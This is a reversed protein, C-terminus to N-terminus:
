QLRARPIRYPLETARDRLVLLKGDPVVASISDDRYNRNCGDQGTAFLAARAVTGAPTVRWVESTGGCCAYQGFIEGDDARVPSNLSGDLTALVELTMTSPALRLVKSGAVITFRGDDGLFWDGGADGAHAVRQSASSAAQRCFLQTVPGTGDEGCLTGDNTRGRLVPVAVGDTMPAVASFTGAADLTHLRWGEALHVELALGGGGLAIPDRYARVGGDTAVAGAARFVKAEAGLLAVGLAAGTGDDVNLSWLGAGRKDARQSAIGAEVFKVPLAHERLFRGGVGYLGFKTVFGGESLPAAPSWPDAPKGESALAGARVTGHGGFPGSVVLQSGCSTSDDLDRVLLACHSHPDLYPGFVPHTSGDARDHRWEGEPHGDESASWCVEVDDYTSFARWTQEVPLPEWPGIAVGRATWLSLRQLASASPDILEGTLVYVDGRDPGRPALWVAFLHGWLARDVRGVKRREFHATKRDVVRLLDVEGAGNIRVWQAVQAKGAPDARPTLLGGPVGGANAWSPDNAARQLATPEVGCDATEGVVKGDLLRFCRKPQACLGASCPTSYRITVDVGKDGAQDDAVAQLDTWAADFVVGDLAPAKVATLAITDTAVPQLAVDVANVGEVRASIPGWGPVFVSLAPPGGDVHWRGKTDRSITMEITDGAAVVDRMRWRMGERPELPLLLMPRRYLTPPSGYLWTGAPDRGVLYRSGISPGAVVVLTRGDVRVAGQVSGLDSAWTMSLPWLPAHPAAGTGPDLVEVNPTDFSHDIDPTPGADPEACASAVVAAALLWPVLRRRVPMLPM